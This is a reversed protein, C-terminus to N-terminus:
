DDDDRWKLYQQHKTYNMVARFMGYLTMAIGFYVSNGDGFYYDLSVIGSILMIGLMIFIASFTYNIVILIM